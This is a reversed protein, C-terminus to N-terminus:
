GRGAHDRILTSRHRFVAVDNFLAGDAAAAAVLARRREPAAALGALAETLAAPDGLPTLLGGGHGRVLDASYASGYGIIPTGSVLAEILCRPSEPTKHCFLFLDAARLRGLLAARDAVFGAFRVRDAIGAAAAAAQMAGIMSGAGLWEARFDVGARALGALAEIWDLPGKMPEARGAYVIDLPADQAQALKAALAPAPIRDAADLHIDHVLESRACFPAYATYTDMGHFLGVAARRIVHRELQRMPWFALAARLRERPTGSGIKRRTVESEVRDTWVAFRRGRRHAELAAMAGWDGFLGGLGFCLYDAAEIHRVLTERVAGRYRLFRALRYARPLIVTEVGRARMAEVPFPAYNAPLPGTREPAAIVVREFNESWRRVGNIAQGEFHLVGGPLAFGVHVVLFLTGAARDAV